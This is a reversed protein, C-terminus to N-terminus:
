RAWLLSLDLEIAEFPEARVVDADAAALVMRYSGGDLRLVELVRTGPDVFWLHRVQERAYIRPKRVRDVRATSTSLVECVWDPAVSTFPADPIEAMRERQWGALDPVLIDADLHLEPEHLIVWGGPGGRGRKFPPGLEEGLASSAAAHLFAPRPQVVLDGDIVQAITHDPAACVDDYTAAKGAPDAM